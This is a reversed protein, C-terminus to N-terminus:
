PSHTVTSALLVLPTTCVPPRQPRPGSPAALSSLAPSPWRSGKAYGQDSETLLTDARCPGSAGAGCGTSTIGMGCRSSRIRRRRRGSRDRTCRSTMARTASTKTPRARTPRSRSRRACSTIRTSSAGTGSRRTRRRQSVAAATHFRLGAYYAMHLRGHEGSRPGFIGGGREGYGLLEQMTPSFTNISERLPKYVWFRHEQRLWSMTYGSLVCKRGHTRSTNLGGGHLTGGTFLLVSGRPMLAQIALDPREQEATRRWAHSFPVVWTSGNDADFHDLAWLMDICWHHPQHHFPWFLDERHLLQERGHPIGDEGTPPIRFIELLKLAVTRSSRCLLAKSAALVVPHSLLRHIAPAKVLVDQGM